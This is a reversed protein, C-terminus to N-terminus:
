KYTPTLQCKLRIKFDLANSQPGSHFPRSHRGVSSMAWHSLLPSIAFTEWSPLLLGRDAKSLPSQQFIGRPHFLPRFSAPLPCLSYISSASLSLTSLALGPHIPSLAFDLPHLCLNLPQTAAPWPFKPSLSFIRSEGASCAVITVVSFVTLKRKLLVKAVNRM